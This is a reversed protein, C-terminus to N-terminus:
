KKIYYGFRREKKLCTLVLMYHFQSEITVFLDHFLHNMTELKHCLLRDEQIFTPPNQDEGWYADVRSLPYTGYELCLEYTM